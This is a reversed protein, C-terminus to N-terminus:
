RNERDHLENVKLAFKLILEYGINGSTSKAALCFMNM